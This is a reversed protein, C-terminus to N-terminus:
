VLIASFSIRQSITQYSILKGAGKVKIKFGSIYCCSFLINIIISFLLNERVKFIHFIEFNTVKETTKCSSVSLFKATLM